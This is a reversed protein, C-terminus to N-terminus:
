AFKDILDRVTSVWKRVRLVEGGITEVDKLTVDFCTGQCAQFDRKLIERVQFDSLGYSVMDGPSPRYSLVYDTGIQEACRAVNAKPAVAIRRLRPLTRLIDIKRTLDECCGYAVLGFRELIPRQYQLVFEEHMQPSILTMEQAAAFVWLRSRSVGRVNPKPDELEMSYPMAQNEHASLGWDGAAEAQDHAALVGDRMFGLLQHLWAPRDMMDLMFNEIGRLYGLDTSLDASWVRYAPARDLNVTLIDGVAEGVRSLRRATEEEDIEHRPPRLRAVDEPDKIPYDIKWSGRMAESFRREGQVGWGSCRHVATVTVWPEFISDDGLTDLLLERRFFSELDHWFPDACELRSEPLEHFAFARVYILPRVPKLSNKLRWLMRREKQISNQCICMYRKALDRLIKLDQTASM